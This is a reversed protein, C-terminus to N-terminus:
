ANQAPTFSSTRTAALGRRRLDRIRLAVADIQHLIGDPEGQLSLTVVDLTKGAHRVTYTAEPREGQAYILIGGPLDAAITYALLQYLDPHHYGAVTVRKYKVDGVFVCQRGDWWSIDPRLRVHRDHDLRLDHHGTGQPFTHEDLGLADRLAIVVFDEFVKNMDVLFTTAEVKGHRLEFASSSLILRALEVAPRYHENLRNYTIKPVAARPYHVLQVRELLHGFSHLARQVRSSRLPTRSLQALAAKILRNPEIDETFEDFRVEVPPFIGLRRRIQEDFRVRGRITTLADEETRYGQLLGRRFASRTHSIFAPAVADVLSAEELGAPLDGWRGRDIAYSILFLVRDIPLKPEIEITLSGVRVVGVESAPTLYYADARGPAPSVTISPAVERLLDREEITLEVPTESPRFERLTLQRM